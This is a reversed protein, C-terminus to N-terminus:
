GGVVVSFLNNEEEGEGEEQPTTATQNSKIDIKIQQSSVFSKIRRKKERLM